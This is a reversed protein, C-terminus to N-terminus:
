YYRLDGQNFAQNLGDVLNYIEEHSIYLPIEVTDYHRTVM